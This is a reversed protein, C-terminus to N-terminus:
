VLANVHCVGKETVVVDVAETATVPLSLSHVLKASEVAAIVKKVGFYIDVAGGMGFMRGDGKHAAISGLYDVQLAGVVAADVRGSRILAFMSVSDLVAGGPKVGVMNRGADIIDPRSGGPLMGIVGSESVVTFGNDLMPLLGIPLGVGLIITKYNSIEELVWDYIKKKGATSLM